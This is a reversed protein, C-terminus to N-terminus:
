QILVSVCVFFPASPIASCLGSTKSAFCAYLLVSYLLAHVVSFIIFRAICSFPASPIAVAAVRHKHPLVRVCSCYQICCLMCVLPTSPFANCFGSTQSVVTLCFVCMVANSFIVFGTFM